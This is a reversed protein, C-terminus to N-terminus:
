AELGVLEKFEKVKNRSIPITKDRSGRMKVQFSNNFWLVVQDIEDLNILFSRHPRFFGHKSLRDEWEAMSFTTTFEGRKSVVKTNREETEVFIIDNLSLVYLKDDKELTIKQSKAEMSLHREILCQVQKLAIETSNKLDNRLKQITKFFREEDVPKLLYDIAAYEFADIAYHNFATAFVIKPVKVSNILEAAIDFGTMDQLQIDLFVIDPMKEKILQIGDEGDCAEGIVQFDSYPNLLSTINRRAPLEDDVVVVTYIM